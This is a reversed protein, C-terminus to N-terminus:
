SHVYELRELISDTIEQVPADAKITHLLGLNSFHELVPTTEKMHIDIRHAIVAPADDQRGRLRLRDILTLIPIQLYFVADLNLQAEQLIQVQGLSRPFGDLIFDPLSLQPRVLDMAMKDPIFNGGSIIDLAIKKERLINGVSITHAGLKSALISAQTGKGSGPLGLLAIKPM